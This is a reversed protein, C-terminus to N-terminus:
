LKVRTHSIFTTIHQMVLWEMPGWVAFALVAVVAILMAVWRRKLGKVAYGTLAKCKAM